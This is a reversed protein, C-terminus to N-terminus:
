EAVTSFRYKYFLYIHEASDKDIVDFDFYCNDTDAVYTSNETVTAQVLKGEQVM